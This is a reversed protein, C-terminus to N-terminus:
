ILTHFPHFETTYGVLLRNNNMRWRDTHSCTPRNVTTSHSYHQKFSNKADNALREPYNFILTPLQICHLISQANQIQSGNNISRCNIHQIFRIKSILNNVVVDAAHRWTAITDCSTMTNMKYFATLLSNHLCHKVFVNYPLYSFLFVVTLRSFTPNQVCKHQSTTDTRTRSLVYGIKNRCLDFKVPIM